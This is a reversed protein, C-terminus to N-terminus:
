YPYSTNGGHQLTNLKSGTKSKLSSKGSSTATGLVTNKSGHGGYNNDSNQHQIHSDNNIMQMHRHSIPVRDTSGANSSSAHQQGSAKTQAHAYRGQTSSSNILRSTSSKQSKSNSYKLNPNMNMQSLKSSKVNGQGSSLVTNPGHQNPLVLFSGQSNTGNAMAEQERM